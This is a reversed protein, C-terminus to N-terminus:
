LREFYETFHNAPLTEGAARRRTSDRLGGRALKYRMELLLKAELQDIPAVPRELRRGLSSPVVLATLLQEVVVARQQVLDAPM